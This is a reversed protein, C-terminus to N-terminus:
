TGFLLNPNFDLTNDRWLDYQEPPLSYNQCEVLAAIASRATADFIPNSNWNEVTPTGNLSGDQNLKFHIRISLDMERAGPPVTWCEKVRSVLVDIITAVMADDSGQVTQEGQDPSGADDSTLEPATKEEDTKNLFAAIDDMNLKPKKKEPKKKEPKKEPKAEAKKVEEKKPEPKKEPPPEDKVTDKILDKLPDPDLPKPEEKKPEPKTPKEKKPEPPPEASAEKAAKNEQEAVKPAPDVKKVVETKKAAPKEKKVESNKSTAKRKAVDGITSLDVIIAEQPKVEYKNPNPLVVLAAFLIAGHLLFSTILSKRM